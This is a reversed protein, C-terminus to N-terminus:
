RNKSKTGRRCTEVTRPLEQRLATIEKQVSRLDKLGTRNIRLDIMGNLANTLSSYYSHAKWYEKSDKKTIFREYLTVNMEDSEIKFEKGINM